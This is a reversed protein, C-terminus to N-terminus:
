KDKRLFYIDPLEENELLLNVDKEPFIEIEYIPLQTVNEVQKQEDIIILTDPAHGLGKKQPPTDTTSLFYRYNQGYLDKSESLLVLDYKEKDELKQYIQKATQQVRLYSYNPTLPLQQMNHKLFISIFAVPILWLIKKSLFQNLILSYILATIPFLYAIYHNFITHQYAATGLIGM